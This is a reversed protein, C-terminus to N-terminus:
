YERDGGGGGARAEMGPGLGPAGGGGGASVDFVFRTGKVQNAFLAEFAYSLPSVYRSTPPPSRPTPHPNYARGLRTPGDLHSPLPLPPCAHPYTNSARSIAM